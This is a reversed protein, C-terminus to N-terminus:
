LEVKRAGSRRGSNGEGSDKEAEDLAGGIHKQDAFEAASVWSEDSWDVLGAGDKAYSKDEGGVEEVRLREVM